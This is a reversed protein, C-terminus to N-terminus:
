NVGDFRVDLDFLGARGTMQRLMKRAETAMKTSLQAATPRKMPKLSLTRSMWSNLQYSYQHNFRANYRPTGRAMQEEASINIPIVRRPVRAAYYRDNPEYEEASEPHQRGGLGRRIGQEFAM